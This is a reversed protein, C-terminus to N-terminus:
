QEFTKDFFDQGLLSIIAKKVEESMKNKLDLNFDNMIRSIKPSVVIEDSYENFSGYVKNMTLKPPTNLNNWIDHIENALKNLEDAESESLLKLTKFYESNPFKGFQKNTIELFILKDLNNM